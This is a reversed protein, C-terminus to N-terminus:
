SITIRLESAIDLGLEDLASGVPRDALDEGVKRLLGGRDPSGFRVRAEPGWPLWGRQCGCPFDSGIKKCPFSLTAPLEHVPRGEGRTGAERPATARDLISLHACALFNSLTPPPSSFTVAPRHKCAIPTTSPVTARPLVAAVKLGASVM